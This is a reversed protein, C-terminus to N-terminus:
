MAVMDVAKDGFARCKAIEIIAAQHTVVLRAERDRETRRQAQFRKEDRVVASRRASEPEIPWPIEKPRAPREGIQRIEAGPPGRQEIQQAVNVHQSQFEIVIDRQLVAAPPRAREDGSDETRVSM